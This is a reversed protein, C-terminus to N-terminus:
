TDEGEEIKVVEIQNDWLNQFNVRYEIVEGRRFKEKAEAKTTANVVAEIERVDGRGLYALFFKDEKKEQIIFKDGEQPRIFWEDSISNPEVVLKVYKEGGSFSFKILLAKNTRNEFKM